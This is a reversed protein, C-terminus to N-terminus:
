GAARKKERKAKREEKKDQVKKAGGGVNRVIVQGFAGLQTMTPDWEQDALAISSSDIDMNQDPVVPQGLSPDTDANEVTAQAQARAQAVKELYFPRLIGIQFPIDQPTLPIFPPPGPYEL